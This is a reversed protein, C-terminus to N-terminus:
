HMQHSDLAEINQLHLEAQASTRKRNTQHLPQQEQQQQQQDQQLQQNQNPSLAVTAMQVFSAQQQQQHQQQHWDNFHRKYENLESQQAQLEHKLKTITKKLNHVDTRNKRESDRLNKLWKRQRKITLITNTLVFDVNLSQQQSEFFQMQADNTLPSNSLKNLRCLKEHYNLQYHHRHILANADHPMLNPVGFPLISASYLQQQQLQQQQLQQQRQQVRSSPSIMRQQRQQQQQMMPMRNSQNMMQQQHQQQNLPQISQRHSQSHQSQIPIQQFEQQQRQEMQKESIVQQSIQALSRHQQANPQTISQSRNQPQPSTLDIAQQQQENNIQLHQMNANIPTNTTANTKAAANAIQAAMLVQENTQYQSRQFLPAFEQQQTQNPMSSQSKSQAQHNQLHLSPVASLLSTSNGNLMDIATADNTNPNLTSQNSVQILSQQLHHQQQQQENHSQLQNSEQSKDFHLNTAIASQNEVDIDNGGQQQRQQQLQQQENSVQLPHNTTVINTDNEVIQHQQQHTQVQMSADDHTKSSSNANINNQQLSSEVFISHQQQNVDVHQQQESAVLSLSSKSLSTSQSQSASQQEQKLQARARSRTSPM